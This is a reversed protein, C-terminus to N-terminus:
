RKATPGFSEGPVYDSVLRNVPTALIGEKLLHLVMQLLKKRFREHNREYHAVAPVLYHIAARSSRCILSIEGPVRIGNRQLCSLTTICDYPKCILWASPTPDQALLKEAAAVTSKATGKSHVISSSLGKHRSLSIGELFGDRSELDGPMPPDPLIMGLHRHGAALMLGVAHRCAAPHDENLSPFDMDASASGLILCPLSHQQFWRQVALPCGTLIWLRPRLASLLNRLGPGPDTSPDPMFIKIVFDFGAHQLQHGLFYDLSPDLPTTDTAANRLLVVRNERGEASRRRGRVIRRTKKAENEIWGERRLTDLALRLTRRSVGLEESLPREGPLEDGFLGEEIRRRLEALTEAALSSRM